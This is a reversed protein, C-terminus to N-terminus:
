KRKYAITTMHSSFNNEILFDQFNQKTKNNSMMIKELFINKNLNSVKWFNSVIDVDLKGTTSTTINKFNSKKLITEISKINFFNLRAPVTFIGPNDKGLIVSEFGDMNLNGILIAGNPNLIKYCKKIVSLPNNFHDLVAWFIIIDFKKYFKFDEIADNFVNLKKKKCIKVAENNVDIGNLSYKSKNKKLAQLFLGPGCGIELLEKKKDGFKNQVFKALPKFILNQRFSSTAEVERSYIEFSKSNKLFNNISDEKPRPNVYILECENCKVLKFYNIINYLNYNKSKCVPCDVKEFISKKISKGNDNFFKKKVELNLAKKYTDEFKIPRILLSKNKM